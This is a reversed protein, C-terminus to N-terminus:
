FTEADTPPPPFSSRSPRALPFTLKFSCGDGPRNEVSMAGGMAETARQTISLGLGAHTMFASSMANAPALQTSAGDPLGGCEDEVEIM